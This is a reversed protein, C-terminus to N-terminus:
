DDEFLTEFIMQQIKIKLLEKRKGDRVRRLQYCILKAFIDDEADTHSMDTQFLVTPSAFSSTPTTHSLIPTTHHSVPRQPVPHPVSPTAPISPLVQRPNSPESDSRQEAEYVYMEPERKILKRPVSEDDWDVFYHNGQRNDQNADPSDLKSGESQDDADEFIHEISDSDLNVRMVGPSDTNISEMKSHIKKLTRVQTRLFNDLMDYYPWKSKYTDEGDGKMRSHVQSVLEKNLEKTYYTRLNAFKKIVAHDTWNMQQGIERVVESKFTRDRYHQSRADWLAPQASILRILKMNTEREERDIDMATAM